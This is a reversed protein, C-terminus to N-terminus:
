ATFEARIRETMPACARVLALVFLPAAVLPVVESLLATVGVAVVLLAAVAVTVGPAAGLFYAALRAVDRTRFDFLSTVVLALVVWLTMAAAIAVLLVAWWGPVGAASFNALTVAVVTLWALAPLWLALAGRVNARYGRLFAAAPALDTIDNRRHHLAYVAASLAPGLPVACLAVLPLNSVDRDLLALPVLGPLTALLLFLGVALVTYVNAAARSLPGDGFQSPRNTASPPSQATSVHTV